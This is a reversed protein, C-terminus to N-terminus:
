RVKGKMCEVKFMSIGQNTIILTLLIMKRTFEMKKKTLKDRAISFVNRHPTGFASTFFGGGTQSLIQKKGKLPRSPDALKRLLGVYKRFRSKQKKKLSITGSLLNLTCECIRRVSAVDATKLLAACQEGNLHYLARLIDPHKRSFQSKSKSPAM